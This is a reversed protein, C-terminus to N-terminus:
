GALSGSKITEMVPSLQRIIEDVSAIIKECEKSAQERQMSNKTLDQKILDLTQETDHLAKELEENMVTALSGFACEIRQELAKELEGSARMQAVSEKIQKRTNDILIMYEQEGKSPFLRQAVFKGAAGSAVAAIICFPLGVIGVSGCLAAAGFTTAIGAGLGVAAGKVGAEQYGKVLGALGFSGLIGGLAYTTVADFAVNAIDAVAKQTDSKSNNASPTFSLQIESHLEGIIDSAFATSRTAQEGLEDMLQKQMRESFNAMKTKITENIVEQMKQTAAQQGAKQTLSKKDISTHEVVNNLDEGLENYFTKMQTLLNSRTQQAAANIRNTEEKKSNRFEAIKEMAQKQKQEFEEASLQLSNKRMEAANLVDTAARSIVALPAALELTGREITLMYTLADEFKRIGSEELLEDDGEIRADLANLASIPFININGIKSKADTYEKSEEGYIEAMKNLVTTQIKRKIGDVARERDKPRITDIRNVLFLLRGLDSGMLKNRVFEAESKSFPADPVIVMIVADLKPVIEESIKDMREDDNLGPTDVIDVGNQCFQCPYYVIAEDVMEARRANDDNTKTVYDAIKDVPVEIVSGDNKIVQAHPKLDYTVRNMTATAPLVDAPMIERGLLANIVTSKGRKFEGMIGVSFKHSTLKHRSDEIAKQSEKLELQGCLKSMQTLATNVEAVKGHYSTYDQNEM